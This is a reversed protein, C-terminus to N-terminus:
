NEKKETYEAIATLAAQKAKDNPELGELEFGKVYIIVGKIVLKDKVCSDYKIKSYKSIYNKIVANIRHTKNNNSCSILICLIILISLYKILKM